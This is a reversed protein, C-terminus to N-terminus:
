CSSAETTRTDLLVAMVDGPPLLWGERRFRPTVEMVTEFPGLIVSRRTLQSLLPSWPQSKWVPAILIGRAEEQRMKSLARTIMHPPPHLFLRQGAWKLAFAEKPHGTATDSRIYPSAAFPDTDPQLALERVVRTLYEEKLYYEREKGM